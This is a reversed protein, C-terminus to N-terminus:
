EQESLDADNLKKFKGSEDKTRELIIGKVYSGLNAYETEDGGDILRISKEILETQEKTFLLEERETEAVKEGTEDVIDNGGDKHREGGLIVANSGSEGDAGDPLGGGEKMVQKQELNNYATVGQNNNEVIAKLERSDRVMFADEKTNKIAKVAGSGAGIVAGGVAGIAAGYPGFNKGMALGKAAGSIASGGVEAAGATHSVGYGLDKTGAKKILGGALEGAASIAGGAAGGGASLGEKLNLQSLDLGFQAMPKKKPYIM